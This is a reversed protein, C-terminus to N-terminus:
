GNSAKRKTLDSSDESEVWEYFKQEDILVRTGVRVFCKRFLDDPDRDAKHIRWRLSNETPWQHTHAWDRLTFLKRGTMQAEM